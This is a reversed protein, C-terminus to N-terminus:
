FSREALATMFAAALYVVAAAAHKGTVKNKTELFLLDGDYGRSEMSDFSKSAKGFAVALLNTCIGFFSAYSRRLNCYGMRSQASVKMNEYSDLLVFIFRYILYMLEIIIRPVRARRLVGIIEYLPTNLSIMYLCTIGSLARASVLCANELNEKTVSVYWNGVPIDLFGLRLGSIDVLLVIGGLLIFSCPILLFRCYERWKLRGRVVTLCTMCCGIMAAAIGKVSSICLILSIIGTMVKLDPNVGSLGSKMAYRDIMLFASGGALGRKHRHAQRHTRSEM